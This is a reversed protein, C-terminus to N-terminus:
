SIHTIDSKDMIRITQLIRLLHAYPIGNLSYDVWEPSSIKTGCEVCPDDNTIMDSVCTPCTSHMCPLPSYMASKEHCTNCSFPHKTKLVPLDMMWKRIDNLKMMYTDRTYKNTKLVNNVMYMNNVQPTESDRAFKGIVYEGLVMGIVYTYYSTGVMTYM